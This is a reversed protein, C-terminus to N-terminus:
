KEKIRLEHVDGFAYDKPIWKGNVEAYCGWAWKTHIGTGQEFGRCDLYDTGAILGIITVIAFAIVSGIIAFFELFDSM